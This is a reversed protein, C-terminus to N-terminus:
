NEDIFHSNGHVLTETIQSDSKMIQSSRAATSQAPVYPDIITWKGM